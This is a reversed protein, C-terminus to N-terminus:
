VCSLWEIHSNLALACWTAYAAWRPCASGARRHRTRVQLACAPKLLQSMSANFGVCHKSTITLNFRSLAMLGATWPWRLSFCSLRDTGCMLHLTRILMRGGVPM